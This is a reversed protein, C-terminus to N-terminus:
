PAISILSSMFRANEIDTDYEVQMDCTRIKHLVQYAKEVENSAEAEYNHWGPRKGDVSRELFYQWISKKKEQEEFKAVLKHGFINEEPEWTKEDEDFVVWKILYFKKGQQISRLILNKIGM